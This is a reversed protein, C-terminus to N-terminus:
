GATGDEIQERGVGLNVERFPAYRLAPFLDLLQEPIHATLQFRDRMVIGAQVPYKRTAIYNHAFAGAVALM